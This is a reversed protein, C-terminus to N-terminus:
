FDVVERQFEVDVDVALVEVEVSCLGGVLPVLEDM